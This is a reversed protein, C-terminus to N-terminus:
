HSRWSRETELAAFPSDAAARLERGALGRSGDVPSQSEPPPHRLARIRLRGAAGTSLVADGCEVGRGVRRVVATHDQRDVAAGPVAPVRESFYHLRLSDNSSKFSTATITPGPASKRIPACAIWPRM